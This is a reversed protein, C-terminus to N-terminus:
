YDCLPSVLINGFAMPCCSTCCTCKVEVCDAVFTAFARGSNCFPITGVLRNDYLHLYKLATLGVLSSPITGSLQNGVLDLSTLATLAGLSSLITGSLQNRGLRLYTLATLAGLSSPITGSLQNDGLSLWTLETLLGFDAPIQGRVNDDELFLSAVQGISDCNVNLWECEDMNTTWTTAFETSGFGTTTPSIPQSFWLTGLVYRQRLSHEDDVATGLDDEVLWRLAREEASSRSPYTLTRGSQTISNIYSLITDARATATKTPM